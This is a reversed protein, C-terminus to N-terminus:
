LRDTCFATVSKMNKVLFISHAGGSRVAQIRSAGLNNILRSCFVQMIDVSDWHIALHMSLLSRMATRATISTLRRMLLRMALLRIYLDM